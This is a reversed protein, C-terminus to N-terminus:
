RKRTKEREMLTRVVKYPKMKVSYGLWNLQKKKTKAKTYKQKNQEM